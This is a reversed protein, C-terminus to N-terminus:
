LCVMNKQVHVMTIGYKPIHVMSTTQVHIPSQVHVVMTIGHYKPSTAHDFMSKQYPLLTTAHKQVHQPLVM